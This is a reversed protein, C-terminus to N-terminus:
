GNLSMEEGFKGFGKCAKYIEDCREDVESGFADPSLDGEHIISPYLDISMTTFVFDRKKEFLNHCILFTERETKGERSIVCVNANTALKYGPVQTNM